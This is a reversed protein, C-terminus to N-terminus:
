ARGRALSQLVIRNLDQSDGALELFAIQADRREAAQTRLDSVMIGAGAVLIAGVLALWLGVHNTFGRHALRLM